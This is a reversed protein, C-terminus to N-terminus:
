TKSLTDAHHEGKPKNKTSQNSKIKKTADTKSLGTLRAVIKHFLEEIFELSFGFFISLVIKFVAIDNSYEDLYPEAFLEVYQFIVIVVVAILAESLSIFRGTKNLIGSVVLAMMIVAFQAFYFWASEYWPASISFTFTAVKSLDGEATRARVLFHYTGWDLNTYERYTNKTWSSWGRDLGELLVQYEIGDINQYHNTTYSFRFADYEYSFAYNSSDSQDLVQVGQLNGYSGGFILSDNPIYEVRRVIAAFENTPQLAAQSKPESKEPKFIASIFDRARGFFSKEESSLIIASTDRAQVIPAIGTIASPLTLLAAGENLGAWLASNPTFLIDFAFNNLLGNEATSHHILGGDFDSIIVGNRFTGFAILKGPIAAMSSVSYDRIYEAVPVLWPRLTIGGDEVGLKMLGASRTSILLEQENLPHMKAARVSKAMEVPKLENGADLYLLGKDRESIILTQGLRGSSEFHGRAIEKLENQHYLLIAELGIFYIRDGLPQIEVITGTFNFGSPLLSKFTTNGSTNVYLYGIEANGGAYIRGETNAALTNIEAGGPIEIMRWELGDFEAIGAPLAFYVLSRSDITVSHIQAHRFIEEVSFNTVDMNQLGQAPTTGSSFLSLVAM